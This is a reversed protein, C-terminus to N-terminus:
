EQLLYNAFGRKKKTNLNELDEFMELALHIMQLCEVALQSLDLKLILVLLSSYFGPVGLWFHWPSLTSQSWSLLSTLM